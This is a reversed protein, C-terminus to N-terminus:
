RFFVTACADCDARLVLKMELAEPQILRLDVTQHPDKPAEVTRTGVMRWDDPRQPTKVYLQYRIAGHQIDIEATKMPTIFIKLVGPQPEIPTPPRTPAPPEPNPCNPGNTKTSTLLLCIGSFIILLIPKMGNTTQHFCENM